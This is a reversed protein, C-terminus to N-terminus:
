MTVELYIKDLKKVEKLDSNEFIKYIRNMKKKTDRALKDNTNNKNIGNSKGRGAVM